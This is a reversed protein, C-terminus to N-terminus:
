VNPMLTANQGDMPRKQVDDVGIIGNVRRNKEPAIRSIPRLPHLRGAQARLAGGRAAGVFFLLQTV